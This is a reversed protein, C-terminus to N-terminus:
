LHLFLLNFFVSQVVKKSITLKGCLHEFNWNDVGGITPCLYQYTIYYMVYWYKKGAM